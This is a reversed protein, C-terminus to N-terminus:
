LRKRRSRSDLPLAVCALLPSTPVATSSLGADAVSFFDTATSYEFVEAAGLFVLVKAVSHGFVDNGLKSLDSRQLQERPGRNTNRSLGKTAKSSFFMSTSSARSQEISCCIMSSPYGNEDLCM